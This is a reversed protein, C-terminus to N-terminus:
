VWVKRVEKTMAHTDENNTDVHAYSPFLASNSEMSLRDPYRIYSSSLSMM